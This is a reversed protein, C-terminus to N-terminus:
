KIAKMKVMKAKMEGNIHAADKMKEIGECCKDAGKKAAGNASRDPVDKHEQHEGHKHQETKMQAAAPGGAIVGYFLLIIIPTKM